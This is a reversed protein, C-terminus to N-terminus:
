SSQPHSRAWAALEASGDAVFWAPCGLIAGRLSVTGRERTLRGLVPSRGVSWREFAAMDEDFFGLAVLSPPHLTLSELSLVGYGPRTALNAFGAARIMADMLTGPGQTDGGSTLYYLGRGGGAGAAAALKLDMRAILREGAAIQGLGRAVKRINARVGTFDGADDISLVRMGRRKLTSMLGAEGGWYRVVVDPRAALVAEATARRQPLGRAAARLFSDAATARKSLGVIDARPSLALVYQDACQDLALVRPGACAAGAALFLAGVMAVAPSGM